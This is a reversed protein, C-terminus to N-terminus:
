GFHWHNSVPQNQAMNHLSRSCALLFAYADLYGAFPWLKKSENNVCNPPQKHKPWDSMAKYTNYVCGQVLMNEETVMHMASGMM